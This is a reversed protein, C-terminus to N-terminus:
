PRPRNNVFGSQKAAQCQTPSAGPPGFDKADVSNPGVTKTFDFNNFADLASICGTTTFKGLTGDNCVDGVIGDSVGNCCIAILDTIGPYAAECDVKDLASVALNMNAAACQRELQRQTNSINSQPPNNMGGGISCIDETGSGQVKATSTNLDVDCSFVPGFDKYLLNQANVHTGWFGPTRTFCDGRAIPCDAVNSASITEPGPSGTVDCTMTVQNCCDTGTCSTTNLGTATLGAITQPSGTPNAISMPIGTVTGVKTTSSPQGMVCPGAFVNDVLHCNSLGATGTSKYTVSVASNGSANAAGCTKSVGLGPTQCAFTASDKSVDALFTKGGSSCQCSLSATDPEDMALTDSCAKTVDDITTYTTQSAPISAINVAAPLINLNTDTLGQMDSTLCTADVDGTNRARYRVEINTAPTMNFANFGICSSSLTKSPPETDDVGSVDFFTKGGDCSVQKDVEVSCQLVSFVGSGQAGGNIGGTCTGDYNNAWDIHSPPPAIPSTSSGLAAIKVDFRLNCSSSATLVLPTTPTFTVTNTSTVANWTVGCTTTINGVFTVATDDAMSCLSFNTTNLCTLKQVFDTVTFSTANNNDITAQITVTDGVVFPGSNPTGAPMQIQNTLSGGCTQAWARNDLGTVVMLALLTVICIAGAAGSRTARYTWPISLGKPPSGNKGLTGERM